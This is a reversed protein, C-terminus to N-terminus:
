VGEDFKRGTALQFIGIIYIFWAIGTFLIVLPSPVGIQYLLTPLGLTTKWLVDLIFSISTLFLQAQAYWFDIAEIGTKATVSSTKEQFEKAKEETIVRLNEPQTYNQYVPTQLSSPPTYDELVGSGTALSSYFSLVLNFLFIGMMLEYMKM